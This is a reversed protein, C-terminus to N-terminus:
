ADREVAGTRAARRGLRRGDGAAHHVACPCVKRAPLHTRTRLLHSDFRPPSYIAFPDQLKLSVRRGPPRICEVEDVTRAASRAPFPWAKLAKSTVGGGCAKAETHPRGDFLAM